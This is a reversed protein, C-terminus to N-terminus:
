DEGDTIHRLYRVLMNREDADALGPFAMLNGPVLAAPDALFILMTENNWVFEADRLAPSYNSFSASSGAERGFIGYLSPGLKGASDEGSAAHCASCQMFAIRGLMLERPSLDNISEAEGLAAMPLLMLVMLQLTRNAGAAVCGTGLSGNM